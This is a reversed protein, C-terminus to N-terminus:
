RRSRLLKRVRLLPRVVPHGALREYATQWKAAAQEAAEVQQRSRDLILQVDLESADSGSRQLTRGVWLEENPDVGFRTVAESTLLDTPRIAALRLGHREARAEFDNGYYRVHDAQGFLRTRTAEDADLDEITPHGRRRPVQIFAVGGASLVRAMEELATLDNPIHELVQYCIIVDFTGDRFPLMTADAQIDIPLKSELDLGVYRIGASELYRRIQPQPAIELVGNVTGLVPRIRELLAVLVRHRELSDCTPCRANPRGGPGEGFSDASTGCAPCHFGSQDVARPVQGETM